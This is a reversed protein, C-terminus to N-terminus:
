LGVNNGASVANRLVGSFPLLQSVFRNWRTIGAQGVFVVDGPQLLFRDALVFAVPSKANLHYVTGPAREMGQMGRIVYVASANSTTPDLGGARGLAQTLTMDTTKFNIAQPKTVEGVVYVEKRDNFPLYVQDGPKLYIDPAITGNRNLADQDLRYSKGDRVLVLGSIDAQEANIGARGVAQSLTLPVPTIEQPATNTFAGQMSVRSGYGVVNLDVQPDNLYRGLKSALTSRVKEITMGTVNIKGAYPFFFSGDPQVQRGNSVAQQQSGAPATLEPHDWVTVLLTDGPQIRYSEPRYSALEAPVQQAQMGATSNAVLEPTIPVVKVEGTEILNVRPTEGTSLQQGMCGGLLVVAVTPMAFARLLNNM